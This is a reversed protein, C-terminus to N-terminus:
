LEGDDDPKPEPQTDPDPEPAPTPEKVDRKPFKVKRTAVLYYVRDKGRKKKFDKKPNFSLTVPGLNEYIPTATIEIQGETDLDLNKIVARKGAKEYEVGDWDEGNVLIKAYDSNMELRVEGTPMPEEDQAFAAPAAALALALGMSTITAFRM